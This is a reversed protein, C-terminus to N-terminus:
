FITNGLSRTYQVVSGSPFRFTERDAIIRQAHDSLPRHVPVTIITDDNGGRNQDRRALAAVRHNGDLVRFTMDRANQEDINKEDSENHLVVVPHSVAIWGDEEISSLIKVVGAERLPRGMTTLKLKSVSVEFLGVFTSQLLLGMGMRKEDGSDPTTDPM